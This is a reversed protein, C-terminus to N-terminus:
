APDPCAAIRRTRKRKRPRRFCRRPAGLTAQGLARV